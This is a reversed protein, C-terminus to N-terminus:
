NNLVEFKKNLIEGESTFARLLYVGENWGKVEVQNENQGEYIKQGTLTFIEVREIQDANNMQLNLFETSPNPYVSLADEVAVLEAVVEEEETLALKLSYSDTGLQMTQGQGDIASATITLPTIIEQNGNRWSDINAVTVVSFLAVKGFGSSTRGNTKTFGVDIRGSINERTLELSPSGYTLWSDDDFTIKGSGEQFINPSYNIEFTLGYIDEAQFYENGLIIPIELIAGPGAVPITDPKGYYIPLPNVPPTGTSVIKHTKGYYQSIATTDSSSVVGDGDTDLFKVENGTNWDSAAQGLWAAAQNERSAGTKGVHHGLALLDYMNVVGDNNADGEWVCDNLVCKESEAIEIDLVEVRVKVSRCNGASVCYQVEFEDTGTANAVPTYLLVKEGIVQQGLVSENISQHFSVRGLEGQSIIEFGEYNIPVAYQIALPNNKAVQLEFTSASPTFDNVYVYATATEVTGDSLTIQYTFRDVSYENVTAFGSRPEYSILGNDLQTLTGFRPQQLFQVTAEGSQLDNELLDFEVAQGVPTYIYDDNAYVNPLQDDLITVFVTKTVAGDLSKFIFTDEGIQDGDPVYRMVDESDDIWGKTPQEELIFGDTSLLVAQDSYRTTFIELTDNTSLADSKVEVSVTAVDCIGIDNCVLYNLNAIGAYGATPYFSIQGDVDITVNEAHNAVLIKEVTLTGNTQTDNNLVDIMIPTGADTYAYDDEAFVKSELVEIIYTRTTSIAPPRWYAVEVTDRGIFNANPRYVLTNFGVIGTTTGTELWTATGNAPSQTISPPLILSQVFEEATQGQYIDSRTESQADVLLPFGLLAILLLKIQKSVNM